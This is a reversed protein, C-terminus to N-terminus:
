SIIKSLYHYIYGCVGITVSTMIFYGILKTLSINHKEELYTNFMGAWVIFWFVCSMFWLTRDMLPIAELFNLEKFGRGTKRFWDESAIKKFDKRMYIPFAIFQILFGCCYIFLALPEQIM